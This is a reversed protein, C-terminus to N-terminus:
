PVDKINNIGLRRGVYTPGALGPLDSDYVTHSGGAKSNEWANFEAPTSNVPL